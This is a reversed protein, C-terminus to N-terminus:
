GGIMSSAHPRVMIARKWDSKLPVSGRVSKRQAGHQWLVLDLDLPMAHRNRLDAATRKTALFDIQACVDRGSYTGAVSKRSSKWTNLVRLDHASILEMFEEVDTQAHNNAM